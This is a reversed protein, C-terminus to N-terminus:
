TLNRDRSAFLASRSRLFESLRIISLVASFHFCNRPSATKKVRQETAHLIAGFRVRINTKERICKQINVANV